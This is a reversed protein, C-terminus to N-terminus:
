QIAQHYLQIYAEAPLTWSSDRTMAHHVLHSWRTPTKRYTHTARQVTQALLKAAAPIDALATPDTIPELFTFGNAAENSAAEDIVTDALGGTARVIPITGYRMAILQTLGCPEYLSPVLLMDAAAYIRHSLTTDFGQYFLLRGESTEALHHLRAALHQGYDDAPHPEGLVALQVGELALLAPIAEVLIPIKQHDIRGISALLLSNEALDAFPYAATGTGPAHVDRLNQRLAHKHALLQPFPTTASSTYPGLAPDTAPNWERTDIGNVIGEFHSLQNVLPALSASFRPSQLERAYSPSVTNARDALSLAASAFNFRGTPDILANAAAARPNTTLFHDLSALRAIAHPDPFAGQFGPGLNHTTFVVAPRHPPSTLLLNRYAPILGAHWDNAHLIHASFLHNEHLKHSLAIAGQSLLIGESPSDHAPHDTEARLLYCTVPPTGPLQGVDVRVPWPHSSNRKLTLTQFLTSTAFPLTAQPPAPLVLRADIEPHAALAQALGAAVDGLGGTGYIGRVQASALLVNLPM